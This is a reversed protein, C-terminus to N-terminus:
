ASIPRGLTRRTRAIEAYAHTAAGDFSLVRGAVLGSFAREAAEALNRRRVGEPPTAIGTRIEADTVVTVFFERAPRSDMWALGEASPDRRMLESVVNTDLVVM